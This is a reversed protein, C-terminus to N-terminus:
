GVNLWTNDVYLQLPHFDSKYRMKGSDRIWYGLYVYDLHYERTLDIQKLIAHIGLSRDGLDPDFYTYIASLGSSLWDVGAGCVLAGDRRFELYRTCDWASGLFTEFQKLSPPYMDGDSHRRDIYRAYLAYHEALDISDSSTVVIDANKQLCRRQSRNPKFSAVPIRAPICAKCSLCHPKYVYEGSRRFGLLSLHSYVDGSIQLKPDVFATVADRGELYSCPHSETLYLRIKKLDSSIDRTM